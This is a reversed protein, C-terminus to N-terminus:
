EITLTRWGLKLKIFAAAGSVMDYDLIREQWVASIIDTVVGIAIMIAGYIVTQSLDPQGYCTTEPVYSVYIAVIIITNIRSIWEAFTFSMTQLAFVRRLAKPDFKPIPSIGTSLSTKTSSNSAVSPSNSPKRTLGRGISPAASSPKRALSMSRKINSKTTVQKITHLHGLAENYKEFDEESVTTEPVVKKLTTTARTLGTSLKRSLDAGRVSLSAQREFTKETDNVLAPAPPTVNESEYIQVTFSTAEGTEDDNIDIATKDASRNMLNSSKSSASEDSSKKKSLSSASFSKILDVAAREVARPVFNMNNKTDKKSYVKMKMDKVDATFPNNEDGDDGLLELPAVRSKREAGALLKDEEEQNATTAAAEAAITTALEIRKKMSRAQMVRFAMDIVMYLIVAIVFTAMNTTRFTVIKGPLAFLIEYGMSFQLQWALAKAADSAKKGVVSSLGKSVYWSIVVNKIVPYIVGTYFFFLLNQPSFFSNIDSGSTSNSFNSIWYTLMMLWLTIWSFLQVSFGLLFSQRLHARSFLITEPERTVLLSPFFAWLLLVWTFYVCFTTSLSRGYHFLLIFAIIIPTCFFAFDFSENVLCKNKNIMAGALVRFSMFLYFGFLVTDDAFALLQGPTYLLRSYLWRFFAALAVTGVAIIGARPAIAWTVFTYRKLHKLILKSPSM